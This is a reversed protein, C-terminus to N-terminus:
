VGERLVKNRTLTRLGGPKECKKHLAGHMEDVASQHAAGSKPNGSEM